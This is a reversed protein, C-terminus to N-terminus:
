RAIRVVRQASGRSPAQLLFVGRPLQATARQPTHPVVRSVSRGAVNLVPSRPAPGNLRDVPPTPLVARVPLNGTGSGFVGLDFSGSRYLGVFDSRRAVDGETDDVMTGGKGGDPCYLLTLEVDKTGDALVM